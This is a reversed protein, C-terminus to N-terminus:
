RNAKASASHFNGYDEDAPLQTAHDADAGDKGSDADPKAHLCGETQQLKVGSCDLVFRQSLGQVQFFEFCLLLRWCAAIKINRNGYLM